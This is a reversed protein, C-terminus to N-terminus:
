LLTIICGSFLNYSSDYGAQNQVKVKRAKRNSLKKKAKGSLTGQEKLAVERKLRLLV